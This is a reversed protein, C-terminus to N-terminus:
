ATARHRGPREVTALDAEGLALHRGGAAVASEMFDALLAQVSEGRAAAALCAAKLAQATEDDIAM